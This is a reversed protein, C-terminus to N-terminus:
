FIKIWSMINSINFDVVGDNDSIWNSPLSAYGLLGSGLNCVWINLYDDNPWANIGGSATNKLDDSGWSGYTFESADTETRTIGTTINGNPDTTALCFEIESDAAISQWVPPTDSTDHNLRRFDKNLVDIQSFIQADSINETNTKWVVHVVVPITIITKERHSPHNKIWKETQSNVKDLAIAYSSNNKMLNKTYAETGCREQASTILSVGVLLLTLIRKM